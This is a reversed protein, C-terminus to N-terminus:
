CGTGRVVALATKALIKFDLKISWNDIYELDLKMWNTFNKDNRAVVEHICTIGPRMSLRRRQWREYREVESPLPPRPGVLSMEGEIVNFLQPLEDLSTKRLLRGVITIRPDNHIKFVPGELENMKKLEKLKQEADVVMTRFKLIQFTRGNLGCRKQRFFVPGRSNVKIAVAILIFWPSLIILGLISGLLDFSRKLTLSMFDNPTAEFTLLPWGEVERIVPKAIATNFFDVAITAKVGIKECVKVYGEVRDLWQRPMVFVVEDVVNEDLVRALDDFTGIVRSKGVAMGILEPEDLCGLIKIGWEPHSEVIDAYKAARPGSGIILTVRFNYGKRRASKLFLIVCWKEITLLCVTLTFFILVFTRSLLYFKILFAATSFVLVAMMSGEFITLFISSFRRDRMTDYVGVVRLMIIWLPVVFLMTPFYESFSPMPHLFKIDLYDRLIYATLYSFVVIIADILLAIKHFLEKEEKLM